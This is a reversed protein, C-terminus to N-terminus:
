FPLDDDKVKSDSKKEAVPKTVQEEKAKSKIYDAMVYLTNKDRNFVPKIPTKLDNNFLLSYQYYKVEEGKDNTFTKREKVLKIIVNEM